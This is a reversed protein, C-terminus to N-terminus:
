SSLQNVAHLAAAKAAIAARVTDPSYTSLPVQVTGTTGDALQFTVSMVQQVQGTPTIATTEAQATVRWQPGAPTPTDPHTM